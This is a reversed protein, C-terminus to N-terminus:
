IKKRDFNIRKSKLIHWHCGALTMLVCGLKGIRM